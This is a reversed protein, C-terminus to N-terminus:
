NSVKDTQNSSLCTSCLGTVYVTHTNVKILFKKEYEPIVSSLICSGLDTFSHCQECHFWHHHTSDGSKEVVTYYRETGHSTCHLVFSEAFGNEELFHLARYVTAQDMSSIIKGVIASAPLPETAECLISLVEQRAKTM